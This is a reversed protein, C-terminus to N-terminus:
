WALCHLRREGDGALEVITYTMSKSVVNNPQVLGKIEAAQRWGGALLLPLPGAQAMRCGKGQLGVVVSCRVHLFTGFDMAHHHAERGELFSRIEM